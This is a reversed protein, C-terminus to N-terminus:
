IRWDMGTLWDPASRHIEFGTPPDTKRQQYHNESRGARCGRVAGGAVILSLLQVLASVGTQRALGAMFRVLLIRMRGTSGLRDTCIAMATLGAIVCVARVSLSALVPIFARRIAREAM